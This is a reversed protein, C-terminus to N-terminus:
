RSSRPGSRRPRTPGRADGPAQCLEVARTMGGGGAAAEHRLPQAAGSGVYAENMPGRAKWRQSCKKGRSRGTMSSGTSRSPTTSLVPVSLRARVESSGADYHAPVKSASRSACRCRQRCGRRACSSRQDHGEAPVRAPRQSAQSRRAPRVVRDDDPVDLRRRAAAERAGRRGGERAAEDLGRRSAPPLDGRSRGEGARAQAPRLQHEQLRRVLLTIGARDFFGNAVVLEAWSELPQDFGYPHKFEHPERGYILQEKALGM